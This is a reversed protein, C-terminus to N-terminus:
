ATFSHLLASTLTEIQADLDAVNRGRQRLADRQATLALVRRQRARPSDHANGGDTTGVEVLAPQAPAPSELAFAPASAAAPEPQPEPAAEVVICNNPSHGRQGACPIHFVRGPQEGPYPSTLAEVKWYNVTRGRVIGTFSRQRGANTFRATVTDGVDVPEVARGTETAETLRSAYREAHEARHTATAAAAQADAAQRMLRNARDLDRRHRRESHHGVLIPQGVPIRDLIARAKASAEAAAASAREARQRNRAAAPPREPTPAAPSQAAQARRADHDTGEHCVWQNAAYVARAQELRTTPAARDEADLRAITEAASLPGDPWEFAHAWADAGCEYVGDRVTAGYETMRYFVIIAGEPPPYALDHPQRDATLTRGFAVRTGTPLVIEAPTQDGPERYTCPLPQRTLM